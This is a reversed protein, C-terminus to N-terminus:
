TTCLTGAAVAAGPETTQHRLAPRARVLFQVACLEDIEARTVDQFKVRGLDITVTAQGQTSRYFDALAPTLTAAHGEFRYGTEEFLRRISALTFFLCSLWLRRASFRPM